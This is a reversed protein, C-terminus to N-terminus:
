SLVAPRPPYPDPPADYGAMGRTTFYGHTEVPTGEFVTIGPSVATMGGCHVSCAGVPVDGGCDDCKGPSHMDSSAAVAMKAGMVSAHVSYTAPGLVLALTLVVAPIRRVLAFLMGFLYCNASRLALTPDHSRCM